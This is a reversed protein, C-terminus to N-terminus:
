DYHEKPAYCIVMLVFPRNTPKDKTKKEFIM